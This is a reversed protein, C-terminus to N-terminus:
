LNNTAFDQWEAYPLTKEFLVGVCFSGDALAACWRVRAARALPERHWPGELTLSVEQGSALATSVILRAGDLSLDLLTRAM